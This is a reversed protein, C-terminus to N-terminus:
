NGHEELEQMLGSYNVVCYKFLKITFQTNDQNMWWDLYSAPIDKIKVGRHKGFTMLDDDNLPEVPPYKENM